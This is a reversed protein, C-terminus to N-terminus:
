WCCTTRSIGRRRRRMWSSSWTTARGTSVKPRSCGRPFTPIPPTEVDVIQFFDSRGRLARFDQALRGAGEEVTGLDAARRASSSITTFRAPFRSAFPQRQPRDHVTITAGRQGLFRDTNFRALISGSEYTKLTPKTIEVSQAAVVATCRCHARRGHIPKEPCVRVRGQGRPCPASTM